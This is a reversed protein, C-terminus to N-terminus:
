KEWKVDAMLSKAAGNLPIFLIFCEIKQIQSCRFTCVEVKWLSNELNIENEHFITRKWITFSRERNLPIKDYRLTWFKMFWFTSIFIYRFSYITKRNSDNIICYQTETKTFSILVAMRFCFKASFMGSLLNYSYNILFWM